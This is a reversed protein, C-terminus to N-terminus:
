NQHEIRSNQFKQVNELMPRIQDFLYDRGSEKLKRQKAMLSYIFPSQLGDYFYFTKLQEWINITKNALYPEISELDGIYMLTIPKISINNIVVEHYYQNPIKVGSFSNKLQKMFEKQFNVNMLPTQLFTEKLQVM